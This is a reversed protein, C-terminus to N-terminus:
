HPREDHRDGIERADIGIARLLRAMTNDGIMQPGRGKQDGVTHQGGAQLLEQALVGVPSGRMGSGLLVAVLEADSLASSGLRLLRERPGEGSERLSICGQIPAAEKVGGTVGVPASGPGGSSESVGMVGDGLGM